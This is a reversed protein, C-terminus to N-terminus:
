KMLIMKKTEVFSQGTITSSDGVRLQYFYIGSPLSTTNLAEESNFEVEYSGANKEENVLTAIERGLVDYVKLTVFQTSSISYQINTSPNFPNPYNQHLKFDAPHHPNEDDVSVLVTDGYRQGGIYCGWLLSWGGSGIDANQQQVLGFEESWYEWYRTLSSDTIEVIKVPLYSGWFSAVQVTDLVIHYWIVGRRDEQIWIDGVIANKKYYLYDQNPFFTLNSDLVRSAYYGDERLRLYEYAESYGSSHQYKKLYYKNDEIRLTDIISQKIEPQLYGNRYNWLNGVELPLAFMGLYEEMPKNLSQANTTLLLSNYFILLQFLFFLKHSLKMFWGKFKKIFILM